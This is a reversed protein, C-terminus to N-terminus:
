SRGLRRRRDRRGPRSGRGRARPQLRPHRGGRADIAALHRELIDAASILNNRVNWAIDAASTPFEDSVILGGARRDSARPVTRGRRGPAEALVEDRDLCDMEIDDRMVNAIPTPHTM